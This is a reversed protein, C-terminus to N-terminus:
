RNHSCPGDHWEKHADVGKDIGGGGGGGCWWTIKTQKREPSPGARIARLSGEVGETQGLRIQNDEAGSAKTSLRGHIVFFGMKLAAEDGGRTGIEGTKRM